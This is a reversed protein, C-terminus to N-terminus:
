PGRTRHPPDLAEARGVTYTAMGEPWDSLDGDITIGRVPEAIAMAGNHASIHRPITLCLLLISLIAPLATKPPLLASM